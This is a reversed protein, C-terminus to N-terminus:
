GGSIITQSFFSGENGIAFSQVIQAGKRDLAISLGKPDADLAKKIDKVKKIKLNNVELIKDGEQLVGQRNVKSVVVGSTIQTIKVNGLIPDDITEFASRPTEVPIFQVNVFANRRWVKANVPQGSVLTEELFNLDQPTHLKKGNIETIVDGRELRDKALSEDDVSTVIVGNGNALGCSELLEKSMVQTHIGWTSSAMLCAFVMLAYSVMLKIM